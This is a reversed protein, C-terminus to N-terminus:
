VISYGRVVGVIFIFCKGLAGNGKKGLFLVHEFRKLIDVGSCQPTTVYSGGGGWVCVCISKRHVNFCM